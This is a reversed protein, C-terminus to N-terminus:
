EKVGVINNWKKYALVLFSLSFFGWVGIIYVDYITKAFGYQNVFDEFCFPQEQILVSDTYPLRIEPFNLTHRKEVLGDSIRSFIGTIMDVSQYLFGFHDSMFGQWKAKYEEGFSDPITFLDHLWDLIGQWWDKFSQILDTFWGSISSGLEGFWEGIGAFWDSLGDWLSTFWEGVSKIFETLKEPIAKIWDIITQFWTSLSEGFGKFMDGIKSTIKNSTTDWEINFDYLNVYYWHDIGSRYNNQVIGISDNSTYSPVFDIDFHSSHSPSGEQKFFYKSEDDFGSSSFLSTDLNVNPASTEHSDSYFSWSINYDYSSSIPYTNTTVYLAMTIQSLVHGTHIFSVCNLGRYDKSTGDSFIVLCNYKPNDDHGSSSRSRSEPLAYTEVKLTSPEIGQSKLYPIYEDSISDDNLNILDDESYYTIEDSSPM